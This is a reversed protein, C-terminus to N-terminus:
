IQSENSLKANLYDSDLTSPMVFWEQVSCAVEIVGLLEGM